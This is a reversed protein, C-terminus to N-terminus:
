VEKLYYQQLLSNLARTKAGFEFLQGSLTSNVSSQDLHIEKVALVDFVSNTVFIEDANLLDQHKYFGESISLLQKKECLELLLNRVVGIVGSHSLTPTFLTNGKIWFLNSMCGEIVFGETDCVIGETIGAHDWESRAMVQELRNLHKIGALLPQRALQTQCLLVSVGARQLDAMDPMSSLSTIRTVPNDVIKYGREANGRTLMLKLVGAGSFQKALVAFDSLFLAATTDDFPIKLRAAGHRMRTLHQQWLLAVGNRIQITEFVGDGYNLGRDAVEIQQDSEGNILAGQM